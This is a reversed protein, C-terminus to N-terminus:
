GVPAKKRARVRPRGAVLAAFARARPEGPGLARTIDGTRRALRGSDDARIARALGRWAAFDGRLVIDEIAAKTLERGAAPTLHRHAMLPEALVTPRAELVLGLAECVRAVRAYGLEPMRGRELAALTSRGIGAAEALQRLTLGNARRREAVLAGLTALQMFDL